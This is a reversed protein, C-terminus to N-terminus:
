SVTETKRVGDLTDTHYIQSFSNVYVLPKKVISNVSPHEIGGM